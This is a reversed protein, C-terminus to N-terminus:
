FAILEEIKRGTTELDTMYLQRGEQIAEQDISDLQAMLQAPWTRHYINVADDALTEDPHQEKWQRITEDRRKEAQRYTDYYCELGRRHASSLLEGLATVLYRPFLTGSPSRNIHRLLPIDPVPTLEIDCVKDWYKQADNRYIETQDEGLRKKWGLIVREQDWFWNAEPFDEISPTEPIPSKDWIMKPPRFKRLSFNHSPKLQRLRKILDKPDMYGWKLREAKIVGMEAPSCDQFSICQSKDRYYSPSRLGEDQLINRFGTMFLKHREASTRGKHDLGELKDFSTAANHIFMHAPRVSAEQIQRTQHRCPPENM